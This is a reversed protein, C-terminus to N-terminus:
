SGDQLAILGTRLGEYVAGSRSNVRLKKYIHKVHDTVTHYSISLMSAVDRYSLGKALCTLIETERPTLQKRVTSPNPRLRRLLHAAVSPTLPVHGKAVAVIADGIHDADKLIYGDAGAELASVVSKEDGFMTAVLRHGIGTTASRRIVEIGDGDPLGLDVVVVDHPTSLAALGAELTDALAVLCLRPDVAIIREFAERTAADDEVVIVRLTSDPASEVADFYLARGSVRSM